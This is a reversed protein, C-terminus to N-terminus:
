RGESIGYDSGTTDAHPHNARFNVTRTPGDDGNATLAGPWCASAFFVGAVIWSWFIALAILYPKQARLSM